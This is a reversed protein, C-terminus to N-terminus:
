EGVNIKAKHKRNDLEKAKAEVMVDVDMEKGKKDKNIYDSNAQEKIKDNEEHLRKSEQYKVNAKSNETWKKIAVKM